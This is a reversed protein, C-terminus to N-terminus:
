KKGNSRITQRQNYSEMAQGIEYDNLYVHSHVTITGSQGGTERLAETLAQKITSLPSVVEAERKNDGLVALFEGYNAPVVTGTALKPVPIPKYTAKGDANVNLNNAGDAVSKFISNFKTKFRFEFSDLKKMMQNILNDLSSIAISTNNKIGNSLGQMLNLGIDIFVKSPSHTDFKTKAKGIIESASNTMANEPMFSNKKIGEKQGLALNKGIEEGKSKVKSIDFNLMKEMGIKPIGEKQLSGGADAIVQNISKWEKKALREVALEDWTMGCVSIKWVGDLPNDHIKRIEKEKAENYKQEYQSVVTQFYPALATDVEEKRIDFMKNIFSIADKNGDLGLSKLGEIQKSKTEDMKTIVDDYAKSMDKLAQETKMGDEFSVRQQKELIAKAKNVDASINDAYGGALTILKQLEGMRSIETDTKIPKQNLIDFERQYEKILGIQKGAASDIQKVFGDVADKGLRDEMGYAFLKLNNGTESVLKESATALEAFADKMKKTEEASVSGTTRLKGILLTLKDSVKSAENRTNELHSQNELYKDENGTLSDALDRFDDAVQSITIDGTKFHEAIDKELMEEQAKNVGYFAGALGALAVVVGGIPSVLFGVAIALGGVLPIAIGLAKGWSMTGKTAKEFVNSTIAFSAISAGLTIFVKTLPSLSKRFAKAGKRLSKFTKVGGEMRALHFAELFSSFGKSLEKSIKLGGLIKVARKVWKVFDAIKNVAWITALTAGITKILPMFKKLEEGIREFVGKVKKYVEDSHKKVNDVFNYKPMQLGLDGGGSSSGINGLEKGAESAKNGIVNLEDFGALNKMAKNAKKAGTEVDKLGTNITNIGKSTKKYDYTPLEIGMLSALYRVGDGLVRIFATIYPIVRVLVPILVNGLTTLLEKFSENLIRVQNAWDDQTRAFDGQALRTANLLYHYRLMVKEQQTMKNISKTIGQQRAYEQLNVETLLIGYRKLTETEGTFVSSLATRAEGQNINYFSAMDASLATLTVAMDSAKDMAMNMGVAMAMYSSGTRKAELQSLGFAEIAKQSFEEMKYSMEGFSVDVVNQVEQLDSAISTIRKGFNAIARVSFATGIAVGLRKFTTNLGNAQNKLSNLGKDFGKGDIKTDFILSGDNM